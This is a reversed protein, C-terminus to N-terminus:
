RLWQIPDLYRHKHRVEVYLEPAPTASSTLGASAGALTPARGIPSGAKLRAGEVALVEGLGTIVLAQDASNLLIVVKGYGSLAGAFGVEADIPAFVAGGQAVAFTVGNHLRGDRGSAGFPIVVGLADAADLLGGLGNPRVAPLPKPPERRAAAAPTLFVALDSAVAAAAVGARSPAQREAISLASIAAALPPPSTASASPPARTPASTSPSAGGSGASLLAVAVVLAACLAGTRRNPAIKRM